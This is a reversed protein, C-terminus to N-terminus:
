SYHCSPFRLNGTVNTTTFRPLKATNGAIVTDPIWPSLREGM